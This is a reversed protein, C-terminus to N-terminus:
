SDLRRDSAAYQRMDGEPRDGERRDPAGAQDVLADWAGRQCAASPVAVVLLSPTCALLLIVQVCSRLFEQFSGM